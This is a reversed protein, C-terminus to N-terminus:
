QRNHFRGYISLVKGRDCKSPRSNFAKRTNSQQDRQKEGWRHARVEVHHQPDVAFKAPWSSSSISKKKKTNYFLYCDEKQKLAAEMEPSEAGIQILKHYLVIVDRAWDGEMVHRRDSREDNRDFGAITKYIKIGEM